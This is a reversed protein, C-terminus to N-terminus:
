GLLAKTKAVAAPNAKLAQVVAQVAVEDHPSLTGPPSELFLPAAKGLIGLLPLISLIGNLFPHGPLGPLGALPDNSPVPVVPVPSPAVPAVPPTPAVPAAPTGRLKWWAAFVAIGGTLVAQMLPSLGLSLILGSIDPM